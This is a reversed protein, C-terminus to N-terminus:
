VAVFKDGNPKVSMKFEGEVVVDHVHVVGVRCGAGPALAHRPNDGQKGELVALFFVNM